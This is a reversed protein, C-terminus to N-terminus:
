TKKQRSYYYYKYNSEPWSTLEQFKEQDQESVSLVASTKVYFNSPLAQCDGSARCAIDTDSFAGKCRGGVGGGVSALLKLGKTAVHALLGLLPVSAEAKLCAKSEQEEGVIYPASEHAINAESAGSKARLLASIVRM